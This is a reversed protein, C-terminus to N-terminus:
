AKFPNKLHTEYNLALREYWKSRYSLCYITQKFVLFEFMENADAYKKLKQLIEFAFISIFKCYSYGSTFVKLINWNNFYYALKNLVFNLSYILYYFKVRLYIPLKMDVENIDTDLIIKKFEGVKEKFKEYAEEVNKNEIYNLLDCLYDL